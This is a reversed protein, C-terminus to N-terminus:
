VVSVPRRKEQDGANPFDLSPAVLLSRQDEQRGRRCVRVRIRRERCFRGGNGRRERRREGDSASRREHLDSGNRRGQWLALRCKYM